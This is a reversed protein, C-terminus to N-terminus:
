MYTAKQQENMFAVYEAMERDMRKKVKDRRKKRAIKRLEVERLKATQLATERAKKIQAAQVRHEQQSKLLDQQERYEANLTLVNLHKQRKDQFDDLLNGLETATQPNVAQNELIKQLAAQEDKRQTSFISDNLDRQRKHFKLLEMCEWQHLLQLLDCCQSLIPMTTM